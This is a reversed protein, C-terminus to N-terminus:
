PSTKLKREQIHYTLLIGAALLVMLACFTWLPLFNGMTFVPFIPFAEGFGNLLQHHCHVYLLSRHSRIYIWGVIFTQALVIASFEGLGYAAPHGAPYLFLPFHFLWWIPALILCARVFGYRDYLTDFVLGRWVLEETNGILYGITILLGNSLIVGATYASPWPDESLGYGIMSALGSLIVPAMLAILVVVPKARVLLFRRFFAKLGAKGTSLALFICAGLIPGLTMLIHLLGLAKPIQFGYAKLLSPLVGLWSILFVTLILPFLKLKKMETIMKNYILQFDAGSFVM